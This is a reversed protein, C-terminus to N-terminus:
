TDFVNKIADITDKDYVGIYVNYTFAVDSHGLLESVIKIDVGNSILMSGYGHRLSHPTYNYECGSNKVMRQLTRELSRKQYPKGNKDRFVLDNNTHPIKAFYKLILQGRKPIPITRIGRESKPTKLIQKKIAKNDKGKKIEHDQDREYVAAMSQAVKISSMDKKVNQWTLGILEGIRLGSYMIFALARAANGYVDANKDTKRLSENWLKEVDEATTYAIVKKKHVVDDEKPRKISEIKFDPIIHQEMGYALVQKIITWVKDISGKSYHEALVYFYDSITDIDLTNLPLSAIDCFRFNIIRSQIAADYADYTQPSLDRIKTKLWTQCFQGFNQKDERIKLASIKGTYHQLDHKNLRIKRELEEATKAYVYKGSKGRYYKYQVGNIKKSGYSGEGNKRKKM